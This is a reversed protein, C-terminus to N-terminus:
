VKVNALISATVLYAPLAATQQYYKEEYKQPSKYGLSSHLRKSNYFTEIYEVIAIKAELRTKFKRRYILDKKLTSFFSEMCANDYCNGKRSMSQIIGNEKLATQYDYAAYQVGRDSHFILGEEPIHRGIAQELASITLTRTMTKDMSWGVIKKHFTDEIAALYLWGEDTPIYTIDGFWLENPCTATFEQDVLNPAVPYRHNSNTTAKYKRRLCSHIANDRMLRAVRNRGCQFGDENLQAQVRRIGYTEYSEKHIRKIEKVLKRDDKKRKSEPRKLWDYFASRSVEFIQCMKEVSFVSRHEEIFKYKM